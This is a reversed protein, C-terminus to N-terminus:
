TWTYKSFVYVYQQRLSPGNMWSVFFNPGSQHYSVTSDEFCRMYYRHRQVILWLPTFRFRSKQCRKRSQALSSPCVPLGMTVSSTKLSIMFRTHQDYMYKSTPTFFNYECWRLPRFSLNDFWGYCYKEKWNLIMSFSTYNLSLPSMIFMFM